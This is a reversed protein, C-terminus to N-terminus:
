GGVEPRIRRARRVVRHGAARFVYLSALLLLVQAICLAAYPWLGEVDAFTNGAAIAAATALALAIARLVPRQTGLATWLAALALLANDLGVVAVQQWLRWNAHLFGYEVTYQVIGLVAALVTIWSLLYGLSFQLRPRDGIAQEIADGTSARALRLGRFRAIALPTLIAVAQALLLFVWVTAYWTMEPLVTWAVLRGWLVVTLVLGMVRWPLSRGGFGAWIAVLSVQSMALSFLAIVAPHPWDPPSDQYSALISFAVLDVLLIAAVLLITLLRPNRM